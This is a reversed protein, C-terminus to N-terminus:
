TGPSGDSPAVQAAFEVSHSLEGIGIGAAHGPRQGWKEPQDRALNSRVLPAIASALGCILDGSDGLDASRVGSLSALGTGHGLPGDGGHQATFGM